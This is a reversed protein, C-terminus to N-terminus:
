RITQPYCVDYLAVNRATIESVIAIRSVKKL